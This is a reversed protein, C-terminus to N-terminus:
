PLIDVLRVRVMSVSWQCRGIEEQECSAQFLGSINDPSADGAAAVVVIRRRASRRLSRCPPEVRSSEVQSPSPCHDHSPQFDICECNWAQSSLASATRIGSGDLKSLPAESIQIATSQSAHTCPM